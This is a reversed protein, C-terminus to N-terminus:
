VLAFTIVAFDVWIGSATGALTLGHRKKRKRDVIYIERGPGIWDPGTRNEMHGARGGAGGWPAKEVELTMRGPQM